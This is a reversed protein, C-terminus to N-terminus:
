DSLYELAPEDSDVHGNSRITLHDPRIEYSAGDSPNTVDFGGGNPVANTLRVNAGDRLREGHYYYSGPTTQCIVALSQSTRIATVPTSGADCRAAHGVFGQADTGSVGPLPAGSTTSPATTSTTASPASTSPEVTETTTSVPPPPAAVTAPPPAASQRDNSFLQMALVVALGLLVITAVVLAAHGRGMRSSRAVPKPPPTEPAPYPTYGTGAPNAYVASFQRTSTPPPSPLAPLVAPAPPTAPAAPVPGGYVAATATKALEGASAFRDGPKKAMGKAVVDDFPRPIGRRMISPRPPPSFMHASMLQRLDGAEFPPRGTLSEYLLCALSYVDASPGVKEGSFREASMYACSGIIL